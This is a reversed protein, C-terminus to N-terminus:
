ETVNSAMAGTYKWSKFQQTCIKLYETIKHHEDVRRVPTLIPNSGTTYLTLSVPTETVRVTFTKCLKKSLSTSTTSFVRLPLAIPLNIM